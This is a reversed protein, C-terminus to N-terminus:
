ELSDLNNIAKLIDEAFIHLHETKLVEFVDNSNTNIKKYKNALEILTNKIDNTLSVSDTM